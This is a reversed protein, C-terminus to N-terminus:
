WFGIFVARELDFPDHALVGDEKSFHMRSTQAASDAIRADTLSQRNPRWALGTVRGPFHLREREDGMEDCGLMRGQIIRLRLPSMTSTM